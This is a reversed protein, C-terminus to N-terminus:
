RATAGTPRRSWGCSGAASPRRSRRRSTARSAARAARAHDLDAPLARAREALRQVRQAHRRHGRSMRQVDGPRIVSGTGMSDKHELAGELVYSIIEMDRHSHPASARGPRRRPGRQDRAARPLGHARPRLLRRVLVHPVLAALRPRCPRARRRSPDVDEHRRSQLLSRRRQYGSGGCDRGYEISVLGCRWERWVAWGSSCTSFAGRGRRRSRRTGAATRASPVILAAAEVGAPFFMSQFPAKSPSDRRGHLTM